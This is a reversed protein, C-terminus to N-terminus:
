EPLGSLSRWAAVLRGHEDWTTRHYADIEESTAGADRMELQRALTKATYENLRKEAREHNELVEVMREQTWEGRMELQCHAWWRFDLWGDMVKELQKVAEWKTM